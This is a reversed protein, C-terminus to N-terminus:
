SMLHLLDLINGHVNGIVGVSGLAGEGGGQLLGQCVGGGHFHLM